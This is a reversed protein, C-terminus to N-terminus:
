GIVVEVVEAFTRTGKGGKPDVNWATEAIMNKRAQEASTSFGIRVFDKVEGAEFQFYSVYTGRALYAHTYPRSHSSRKAVTGDSFTATFKTPKPM